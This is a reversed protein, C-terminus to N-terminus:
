RQGHDDRRWGEEETGGDHDGVVMCLNIRLFCLVFHFQPQHISKHILWELALTKAEKLCKSFPISKGDFHM